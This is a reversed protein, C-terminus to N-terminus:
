GSSILGNHTTLCNGALISYLLGFGNYPLQYLNCISNIQAKRSCQKGFFRWSRVIDKASTPWLHKIKLNYRNFHDESRPYLKWCSSGKIMYILERKCCCLVYWAKELFVDALRKCMALIQPNSMYETAAIANIVTITQLTTRTRVWIRGNMGVTIEYHIHKGLQKLLPCDSSLIRFHITFITIGKM